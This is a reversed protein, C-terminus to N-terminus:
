KTSSQPCYSHCFGTRRRIQWQSHSRTNTANGKIINKKSNNFDATIKMNPNKMNPYLKTLIVGGVHRLARRKTRRARRKTKNPKM